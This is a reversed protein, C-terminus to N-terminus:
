MPWSSRGPERGAVEMLDGSSRLPSLPISARNTANCVQSLLTQEQARRELAQDDLALM